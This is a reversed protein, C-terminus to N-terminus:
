FKKLWNKSKKFTQFQSSTRSQNMSLVEGNLMDNLEKLMILITQAQIHNSAKLHSTEIITLQQKRLSHM